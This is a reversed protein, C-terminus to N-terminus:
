GNQQPKSSIVKTILKRETENLSVNREVWRLYGVDVKTVQSGKFKGKNFYGGSCNIFNSQPSITSYLKTPTLEPLPNWSRNLKELRELRELGTKLSYKSQQSKKRKM